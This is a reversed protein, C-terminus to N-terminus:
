VGSLTFERGVAVHLVFAILLAILYPYCCKGSEEYLWPLTALRYKENTQQCTVHRAYGISCLEEGKNLMWKDTLNNSHHKWTIGKVYCGM